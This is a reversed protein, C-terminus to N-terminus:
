LQLLPCPHYMRKSRPANHASATHGLGAAQWQPLMTSPVTKDKACQLSTGTMGPGTLRPIEQPPLRTKEQPLRVPQQINSRRPTGLGPQQLPALTSIGLIYPNPGTRSTPAACRLTHHTGCVIHWDIHISLTFLRPETPASALGDHPARRTRIRLSGLGQLPNGLSPPLLQDKYTSKSAVPVWVQSEM